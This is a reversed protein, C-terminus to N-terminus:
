VAGRGWKGARNLLGLATPPGDMAEESASALSSGVGRGPPTRGRVQEEKACLPQPLHQHAFRALACSPPVRVQPGERGISVFDKEKGPARNKPSKLAM